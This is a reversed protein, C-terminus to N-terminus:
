QASFVWSKINEPQIEEYFLRLSLVGGDNNRLRFAQSEKRNIKVDVQAENQPCLPTKAAKPRKQQVLCFFISKRLPGRAGM